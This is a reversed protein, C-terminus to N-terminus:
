SPAGGDCVGVRVQKTRVRVAMGSQHGQSSNEPSQSEAGGGMPAESGVALRGSGLLGSAGDVCGGVCQPCSLGLTCSATLHPHALPLPCGCLGTGTHTCVSICQCLPSPPENRDVSCQCCRTELGKEEVLDSFDLALPSRIIGTTCILFSLSLAIM